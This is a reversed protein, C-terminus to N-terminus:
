TPPPSRRAGRHRPRHPRAAPRLHPGPVAGHLAREAAPRCAFGPETAQGCRCPNMAAVLQFRAPYTVRHNARAILSRAPRSRSACPTSCRRSSNRCSTSSSCATIPWRSRARGPTSAAASSRRWRPPITRRASRGATRSRARGRAPRRGVPDDVSRAARAARAAAPDLAPAAGADVQRRGAARDDPPQPRRRRRDRARAQREGPGQHRAPRAPRPRRPAIAPEPRALM